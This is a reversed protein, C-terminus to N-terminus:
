FKNKDQYEPPLELKDMDERYYVKIDKPLDKKNRRAIYFIPFETRESHLMQKRIEKTNCGTQNMIDILKQNIVYKGIHWKDYNFADEEIEVSELQYLLPHKIDVNNYFDEQEEKSCHALKAKKEKILLINGWFIGIVVVGMLGFFVVMFLIFAFKEM